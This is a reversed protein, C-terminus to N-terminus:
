DVFTREWTWQRGNITYIADTYQFLRHYGNPDWMHVFRLSSYQDTDQSGCDYGYGVLMHDDGNNTASMIVGIAQNSSIENKIVSWGSKGVVCDYFLGYHSLADEVGDLDVRAYPWSQGMDQAVNRATLSRNKRYNVITAVCAAWCLPDRPEQEVFNTISCEQTTVPLIDARPAIGIIIDILEIEEVVSSIDFDTAVTEFCAEILISKEMYSLLIFVENESCDFGSDYLEVATEENEAYVSGGTTYLLYEPLSLESVNAYLTTDDCLSVNGISDVEATGVCEGDRFIPIVYYINEVDANYITMANGIEYDGPIDSYFVSVMREIQEAAALELENATTGAANTVFCFSLLMCIVLAISIFRKETKFKM